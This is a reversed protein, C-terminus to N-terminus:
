LHDFQRWYENFQQQHTSRLVPVINWFDHTGGFERPHIHHMDYRNWGGIPEAYGRRCWEDKFAQRQPETLAPTRQDM